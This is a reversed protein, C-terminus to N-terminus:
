LSPSAGPIGPRHIFGCGFLFMFLRILFPRKLEREGAAFHPPKQRKIAIALAAEAILAARLPPSVVATSHFILGRFSPARNFAIM